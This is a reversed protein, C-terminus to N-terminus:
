ANTGADREPVNSHNEGCISSFEQLIHESQDDDLEQILYWLVLEFDPEGPAATKEKSDQIEESQASEVTLCLHINVWKVHYM